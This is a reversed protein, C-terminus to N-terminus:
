LQCWPIIECRPHKPAFQRDMLIHDIQNFVIGDPSAWTRKHIEKHPFCTSSIVMNKSMAFDILKCGNDSSVEHLSHVGTTGGHTIEKGVKANLIIETDNIAVSDRVRELVQYFKDEIFDDRDETPAHVNILSINFFKSKICLVSIPKFDLISVKLFKYVVFAVGFERKGIEKGSYFVM